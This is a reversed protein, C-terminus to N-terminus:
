FSHSHHAFHRDIRVCGRRKGAVAQLQTSYLHQSLTPPPEGSRTELAFAVVGAYPLAQRMNKPQQLRQTLRISSYGYTTPPTASWEALRWPQVLLWACISIAGASAALMVWRKLRTHLALFWALPLILAYFLLVRKVSVALLLLPLGVVLRLVSPRRLFWSGALLLLVAVLNALVDSNVASMIDAFAPHLALISLTAYPLMRDDGALRCLTLYSAVFLLGALVVSFLRAAYLQATISADRLPLTVLAVLAYYLPPHDRENIGISLTPSNLDPPTLPAARNSYFGAEIMSTAIARRLSPIQEDTLPRRGLERILAAYEFHTPEDYHQWPPVLWVYAFLHALWVALLTGVILRERVVLPAATDDIHAM